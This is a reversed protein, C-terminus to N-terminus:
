KKTGNGSWIHSMIGKVGERGIALVIVTLGGAIAAAAEASLNVGFHGALWVLLVSVSATGGAVTANPNNQM